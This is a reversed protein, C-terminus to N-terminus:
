AGPIMRTYSVRLPMRTLLQDDFLVDFWYVGEQDFPTEMNIVINHGQDQGTLHVTFVPARETDKVGSPLERVIKVEHRGRAQGSRVAIVASLRYTFPPMEAPAEPGAATQTVRNIVRIVSLVNDKEQLVRECFCALEVYPGQEFAM